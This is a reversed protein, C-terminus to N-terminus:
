RGRSDHIKTLTARSLYPRFFRDYDEESVDPHKDLCEEVNDMRTKLKDCGFRSCQGCNELGRDRVCPFVRCEKDPPEKVGACGNCPRISEPALQCDFYKALAESMRRKDQEGKLNTEHM